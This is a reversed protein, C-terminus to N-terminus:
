LFDEICLQIKSFELIKSMLSVDKHWDEIMIYCYFSNVYWFFKNLWNLAARALLCKKETVDNEEKM